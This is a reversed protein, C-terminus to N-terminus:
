FTPEIYKWEILDGNKLELKDAAVDASKGNVFFIWSMDNTNQTNNISKVFVGFDYMQTEIPFSHSNSLETLADFVTKGEVFNYDFSDSRNEDYVLNITAKNQNVKLTPSVTTSVKQSTPKFFYFLGVLVLILPLILFLKKKM